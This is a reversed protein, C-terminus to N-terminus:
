RGRKAAFYSSNPMAGGTRWVSTSARRWTLLLRNEADVEAEHLFIAAVVAAISRGSLDGKSTITGVVSKVSRPKRRSRSRGRDFIHLHRFLSILLAVVVLSVFVIIMGIAVISGVMGPEAEHYSEIADAAAARGIGLDALSHGDADALDLKLQVALGKVSVSESEALERITWSSNFATLGDGDAVVSPATGLLLIAIVVVTRKM